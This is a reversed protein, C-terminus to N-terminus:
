EQSETKITKLRGPNEIVEENLKMPKLENM